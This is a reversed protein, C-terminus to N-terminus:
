PTGLAKLAQLDDWAQRREESWTSSDPAAGPHAATWADFAHVLSGHRIAPPFPELWDLTPGLDAAARAITFQVAGPEKLDPPLTDLWDRCAVPDSESWTATVKRVAAPRTPEPSSEVLRTAAAPRAPPSSDDWEKVVESITVSPLAPLYRANGSRAFGEPDLTRWRQLLSTVTGQPGGLTRVDPKADKFIVEPPEFALLAEEIQRPELLAEWLLPDDSAWGGRKQFLELAIRPNEAMLWRCARTVDDSELLPADSALAAELTVDGQGAAQTGINQTVWKALGAPDRWAWAAGIERFASKWLGEERFRQWAWHAAAEGDHSTWHVLLTKAALTLRRDKALEVRELAAPFAQPPLNRLAMAAALKQDHTTASALAALMRDLDTSSLLAPTQPTPLAPQPEAPSPRLGIWCAATFASATAFALLRPITANM